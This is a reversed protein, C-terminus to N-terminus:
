SGPDLPASCFECQSQSHYWGNKCDLWGVMSQLLPAHMFIHFSPLGPPVHPLVYVLLNHTSPSSNACALVTGDTATGDTVGCGSLDEASDCDFLSTENGICDVQTLAVPLRRALAQSCCVQVISTLM